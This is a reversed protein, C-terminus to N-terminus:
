VEIIKIGQFDESVGDVLRIRDDSFELVCSRGAFTVGTM